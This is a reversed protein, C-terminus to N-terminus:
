EADRPVSVSLERKSKTHVFMARDDKVRDLRWEGLMQGVLLTRPRHQADDSLYARVMARGDGAKVISTVVPEPGPAVPAPPPPAPQPSASEKVVPAVKVPRWSEPMAFGDEVRGPSAAVLASLRAALHARRAVADDAQAGAPASTAASTQPRDAAEDAAAGELSPVESSGLLFADVMWGACSSLFLGVIVKRQKTM